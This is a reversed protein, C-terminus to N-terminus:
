HLRNPLTTIPDTVFFILDNVYASVKQSPLGPLALGSIIDCQRITCLFPELTLVFLLPSLPCGQRTGNTITFSDFRIGNVRVQATPGAYISSMWAMGRSGLGIHVLTFRLFYWHVWDFAKEADLALLLLHSKQCCAAHIVDLVRIVGDKAERSIMFGVQDFHILSPLWHKLRNALLRTFLKLDM